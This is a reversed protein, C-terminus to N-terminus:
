LTLLVSQHLDGLQLSLNIVCLPLQSPDGLFNHQAYHGLLM